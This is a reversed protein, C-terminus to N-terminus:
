VPVGGRDPDLAVAIPLLPKAVGRPIVGDLIRDYAALYEDTMRPVNFATEVRRRCAAPDIGSVRDIAAVMEDVTDVVYGTVGDEVVEPASGRNLALVPTGCAMAEAMFLGFPENWTLPAVLCGIAILLAATFRASM